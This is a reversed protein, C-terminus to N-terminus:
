TTTTPKPVLPRLATSVKSTLPTFGAWTTTISPRDDAIVSAFTRPYAAM